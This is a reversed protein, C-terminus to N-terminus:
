LFMTPFTILSCTTPAAAVIFFQSLDWVVFPLGELVAKGSNCQAIANIENAPQQLEYLQRGQQDIGFFPATGAPIELGTTTSVGANGIFVSAGTTPNSIIFGTILKSKDLTPDIPLPAATVAIQRTTFQQIILPRQTGVNPISVLVAGVNRLAAYLLGRRKSSITAPGLGSCGDNIGHQVSPCAVCVGYRWGRRVCM